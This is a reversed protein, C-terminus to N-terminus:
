NIRGSKLKQALDPRKQSKPKSAISLTHSHQEDETLPTFRSKGNSQKGVALTPRKEPNQSGEANDCTKKM